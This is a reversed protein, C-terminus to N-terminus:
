LPFHGALSFLDLMDRWSPRCYCITDVLIVNAATVRVCHPVRWSVPLSSAMLSGWEYFFIPSSLVLCPHRNQDRPLQMFGSMQGYTCMCALPSWASDM